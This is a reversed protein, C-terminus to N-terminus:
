GKETDTADWLAVGKESRREMRSDIATADLESAQYEFGIHTEFLVNGTTGVDLAKACLVNSAFVLNQHVCM